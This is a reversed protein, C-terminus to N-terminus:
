FVNSEVLKSNFAEMAMLTTTRTLPCFKIQVNALILCISISEQKNGCLPVLGLASEMSEFDDQLKADKGFYWVQGTTHYLKLEPYTM